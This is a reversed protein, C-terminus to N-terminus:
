QQKFHQERIKLFNLSYENNQQNVLSESMDQEEKQCYGHCNNCINGGM